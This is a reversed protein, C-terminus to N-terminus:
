LDEKFFISSALFYFIASSFFSIIFTFKISFPFSTLNFILSKDFIFYFFCDLAVIFTFLFLFSLLLFLLIKLFFNM